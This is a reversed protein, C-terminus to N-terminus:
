HGRLFPSLMRWLLRLHWPSSGSEWWTSGLRSVLYTKVQPGYMLLVSAIGWALVFAIFVCWAATM